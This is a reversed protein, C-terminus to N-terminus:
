SPRAHKIPPIPRVPGTLDGLAERLGPYAFSYGAQLAKRARVRQSALFLTSMEGLAARLLWAPVPLIIRRGALQNIVEGHRAAGPAVANVPGQLLDNDLAHVILGVADAKHIWAMWQRGHGFRALVGLARTMVLNPFAGGDRGFVLGLRLCVTRVDFMEARRAAAEWSKCLEATFVGRPPRVTEDLPAEGGDGYLGVASANVLVRPRMGQREILDTVARTTQLRSSLLRERRKATWSGAAVNAGALNVIAHIPRTPDIDDLSTVPEVHAGLVREAKMRHRTLAIVTDGREVLQAVLDRGLFGTAGTVLVTRGSPTARPEPPERLTAFAYVDRLGWLGVGVAGVLLIPTWLGRMEVALGTPMQAWGWLVPTLVALIAGYNLALITHLVRELPPLVRTRDEEIFDALTIAIEAVLVAGLAIAWVGEPRILALVAFVGAYILERAGHLGLERRASPRTPLAETLEHHLLNDLGGLIIQIALLIFVPLLGPTMGVPTFVSLDM